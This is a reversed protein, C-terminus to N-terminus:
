VCKFVRFMRRRTVKNKMSKLFVNVFTRTVDIVISISIHLVSVTTTYNERIELPTNNDEDKSSQMVTTDLLSTM